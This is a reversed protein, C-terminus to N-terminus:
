TVVLRRNTPPSLGPPNNRTADLLDSADETIISYQHHLDLYGIITQYRAM